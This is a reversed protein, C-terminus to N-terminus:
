PLRAARMPRGRAPARLVRALWAAVGRGGAAKRAALMQAAHRDQADKPHLHDPRATLIRTDLPTLM